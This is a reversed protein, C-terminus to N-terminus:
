AVLYTYNYFISGGGGSPFNVQVKVGGGSNTVFGVNYGNTTVVGGGTLSATAIPLDILFSIVGSVTALVDNKGNIMVMNGVRIVQSNYTSLITCNVPSSPTPTYVPAVVNGTTNSSQINFGGTVQTGTVSTVMKNSDNFLFSTSTANAILKQIGNVQVQVATANKILPTDISTTNEILPTNISGFGTISRLSNGVINAVGFNFETGANVEIVGIASIGFDLRTSGAEIRLNSCNLYSAETGSKGTIVKSLITTSAGNNMQFVGGNMTINSTGQMNLLRGNEFNMTGHVSCGQIDTLGSFFVDVASVVADGFNFGTLGYTSGLDGNISFGKGDAFLGLNIATTQLWATDDNENFYMKVNNVSGNSQYGLEDAQFGLAGIAGVLLRKSQTDATTFNNHWILIPTGDYKWTVGSDDSLLLTNIPLDYEEWYPIVPSNNTGTTVGERWVYLKGESDWTGAEPSFYADGNNPSVPPNITSVSIVTQTGAFQDIARYLSREYDVFEALYTDNIIQKLKTGIQATM